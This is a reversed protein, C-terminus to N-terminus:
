AEAAPPLEERHEWQFTRDIELRAEGWHIQHIGDQTDSTFFVSLLRTQSGLEEFAEHLRLYAETELQEGEVDFLTDAGWGEPGHANYLRKRRESVGSRFRAKQLPVKRSAYRYPFLAHDAIIAYPRGGLLRVEGGLSEAEEALEELVAEALIQGYKANRKLRSAAHGALARVHANRLRYPVACTLRGAHAGFCKIAWDSPEM